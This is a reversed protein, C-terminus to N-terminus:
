RSLQQRLALGSGFAGSWTIGSLRRAGRYGGLRFSRTSGRASSKKCHAPGAGDLGLIFFVMIVFSCSSAIMLATSSPPSPSSPKNGLEHALYFEGLPRTLALHSMGGEKPQAGVFLREVNDAFLCSLLTSPTTLAPLLLASGNRMGIHQRRRPPDPAGAM